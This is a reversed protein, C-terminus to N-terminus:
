SGRCRSGASCRFNRMTSPQVGEAKVDGSNAKESIRSGSDELARELKQFGRGTRQGSHAGRYSSCKAEPDLLEATEVTERLV